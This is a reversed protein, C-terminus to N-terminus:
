LLLSPHPRHQQHLPQRLAHQKPVRPSHTSRATLADLQSNTANLAATVQQNQTALNQATHHEHVAYGVGTAGIAVAAVYPIVRKMVPSVTPLLPDEMVM